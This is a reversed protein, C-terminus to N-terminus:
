AEDASVRRFAVRRSGGRGGRAGRGECSAVQRLRSYVDMASRHTDEHHMGLAARRMDLVRQQLAECEDENGLKLQLRAM